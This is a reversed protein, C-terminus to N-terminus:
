RQAVDREEVVIHRVTQFDLYEQITLYNIYIYIYIYIYIHIYIYYLFNMLNYVCHLCSHSIFDLCNWRMEDLYINRQKLLTIANVLIHLSLLETTLANAWPAIPRRISGEHHVWWAIEWELWHEVVPTVFATTHAIIDTPHAYLLVRAALRFYYGM